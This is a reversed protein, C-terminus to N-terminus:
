PAYRAAVLKSSGAVGAVVIKDDAQVSLACAFDWGGTSGFDATQFGDGGFGTDIAGDGDFRAVLFYNTDLGGIAIRDQSDVAVQLFSGVLPAINNDLGAVGCIGQTGFDDALSGDSNFATVVATKPLMFDIYGFGALLIRGDSLLALDRAEDASDVDVSTLGGGAFDSDLSGDATLRLLWFDSDATGGILIEGSGNVALDAVRELDTVTVQTQGSTGFATDVSGDALFRRVRVSGAAMGAVLLRGDAARTMARVSEGSELAVSVQGDSGFDTAPDGDSTYSLLVLRDEGARTCLYLSDDAAVSMGCVQDADTPTAGTTIVGDSGFAADLQGGSTLAVIQVVDIPFDSMPDGAILIRGTSQVAMAAPTLHLDTVVVGATGFDADLGNTTESGAETRDATWTGQEDYAPLSFTGSSGDGSVSGVFTITHDIDGFTIQSGSVTGTLAATQMGIFPIDISGSLSSGSQVVRAEFGGDLGSTVASVWTGDWTGDMDGLQGGNGGNGGGGSGGCATLLLLLTLLIGSVPRTRRHTQRDSLRAYRKVM